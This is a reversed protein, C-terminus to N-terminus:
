SSNALIFWVSRFHATVYWCLICRCSVVSRKNNAVFFYQNWDRAFWSALLDLIEWDKVMDRLFLVLEFNFYYWTPLPEGTLRDSETLIWRLFQRTSITISTSSCRRHDPRSLTLSLLNPVRLSSPSQYPWPTLLRTQHGHRCLM